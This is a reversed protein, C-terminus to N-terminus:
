PNMNQQGSWWVSKAVAAHNCNLSVRPLDVHLLNPENMKRYATPDVHWTKKKNYGFESRTAFFPLSQM